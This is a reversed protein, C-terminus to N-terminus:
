DAKQNVGHTIGAGGLSAGMHHLSCILGPGGFTAQNKVVVM